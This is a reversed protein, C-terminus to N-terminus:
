IKKQRVNDQLIKSIVKIILIVTMVLLLASTIILAFNKGYNSMFLLILAWSSIVLMFITPILTIWYNVKRKILYLTIVLLSLAALLQNAAGFVPWILKGNGSFALYGAALVSIFTAFYINKLLNIKKSQTFIKIKSGFLEQWTFRSLRTATDLTTLMFASVTLAIFTVGFKFPMGLQSLIGAIGSSFANVPSKANMIETFEGKSLIAISIVAVLALVGETLMGGYSISLMDSEKNVQKSTTGSSVLSHFGSCAGCAVVVFLLPFLSMKEGKASVLVRWDTFAPLNFDPAIIFIGAVSLILIVYLLYSNLYDRPQLLFWVPLISAIFVYFLLIFVFIRYTWENSVNFIQQLNLPFKIGVVVSLFLLPLFILTGKLLSIGKKNILHGFFPAMLIFLISSTAVSPRSVCIKAILITFIGVVLVLASWTFVLFIVKGTLGLYEEIIGGITKGQHRGSVVLTSFDHVAGVFITGIIIWLVTPGWGFYGALVPGVIPGSGAISAFHHGFLISPKTPVYDRGDRLSKSPVTNQNSINFLKKLFKGYIIYALLFCIIGIVLLSRGNM